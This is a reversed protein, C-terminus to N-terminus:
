LSTDVTSSISVPPLYHSRIQAHLRAVEGDMSEMDRILQTFQVIGERSNSFGHHKITEMEIQVVMPFVIQMMKLMENGAAEKAEDLKAAYDPSELTDIVENLIQRMQDVSVSQPSAM